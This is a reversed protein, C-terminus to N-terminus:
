GVFAFYDPPDKALATSRHAVSDMEDDSGGGGEGARLRALEAEIGERTPLRRPALARQAAALSAFQPLPRLGLAEPTRAGRDPVDLAGTACVRALFGALVAALERPAEAALRAGARPMRLAQVSAAGAAAAIIDEAGDLVLPRAYLERALIFAKADAALLAATTPASRFRASDGHGRLDFAIVRFGRDALRQAVPAWVAASEAVDHLLLLTDQSDGWEAYRLRM